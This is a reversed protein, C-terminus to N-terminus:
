RDDREPRDPQPGCETMRELGQVGLLGGPLAVERICAREAARPVAEDRPPLADDLERGAAVVEGAGVVRELSGPQVELGEGCRDEHDDEADDRPPAEA